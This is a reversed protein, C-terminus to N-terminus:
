PLSDLARFTTYGKLQVAVNSYHRGGESVLAMAEPKGQSRRGGGSSQMLQVGEPPIEIAIRLLNTSSFIESSGAPKAARVSPISLLLAAAFACLWNRISAPCACANM